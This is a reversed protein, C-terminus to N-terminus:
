HYPPLKINLFVRIFQPWNKRYGEDVIARAVYASFRVANLVAMKWLALRLYKNLFYRESRVNEIFKRAGIKAISASQKHWVIADPVLFTLLNLQKLKEAVIFEEWYLFTAEDFLGIERLAWAKFMMASGPVAYVVDPRDQFYFFKRFLSTRTFLRRFPSLVLLIGLFGLRQAVPWQTYQMSGEDLVKPGMLALQSNQEGFEVLKSICNAQVHTDNNLVFVYGAGSALAHRIGVNNGRAFGLNSGTQILVLQVTRWQSGEANLAAELCDLRPDGEIFVLPRDTGTYKSEQEFVWSRIKEVSDDDSANDCVVLQLAPYGTDLLSQLCLQTDRWGNWNLVVVSVNPTEVTM